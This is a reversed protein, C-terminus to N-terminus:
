PRVEKPVKAQVPPGAPLERSRIAAVFAEQDPAPGPGLNIHGRESWSGLMTGVGHGRVQTSARELTFIRVTDADNYLALGVFYAEAPALPPPLVVLLVQLGATDIRSASLGDSPLRDADDLTEGVFNWLGTLQETFGLQPEDTVIQRGVRRALGPLVRHAFQYHHTRPDPM